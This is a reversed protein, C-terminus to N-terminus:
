YKLVPMPEPTQESVHWPASWEAAVYGNGDTWVAGLTKRRLHSKQEVQITPSSRQQGPRQAGTLFRWANPLKRPAISMSVLWRQTLLNSPWNCHLAKWCFM